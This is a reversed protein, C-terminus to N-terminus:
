HNTMTTSMEDDDDHDDDLRRWLLLCQGFLCASTSFDYSSKQHGDAWVVPKGDSGVTPTAMVRGRGGSGYLLQL